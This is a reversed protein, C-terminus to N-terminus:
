SRPTSFTLTGTGLGNIRLSNNGTYPALQFPLGPTSSVASSIKGNAPLFILPKLGLPNVFNQSVFAFNLNDVDATTSTTSKGAGDAVVDANFGTLSIPFPTYSQANGSLGAALTLATLLLKKM